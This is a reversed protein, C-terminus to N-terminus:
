PAAAPKAAAAGRPVMRVPVCFARSVAIWELKDSAPTRQGERALFVRMGPVFVAGGPGPPGAGPMQAEFVASAQGNAIQLRGIPTESMRGQQGPINLLAVIKFPRDPPQSRNFVIHFAIKFSEGPAVARAGEPPFMLCQEDMPLPIGEATMAWQVNTMAQRDAAALPYGDRELNYGPCAATAATRIVRVHREVEGKTKDDAVYRGLDILIGASHLYGEMNKAGFFASKALELNAAVTEERRKVISDRLAKKQDDSFPNLTLRDVITAAKIFDAISKTKSELLPKLTVMEADLCEQRMASLLQAIKDDYRGSQDKFKIMDLALAASRFDDANRSSARFKAAAEEIRADAGTDPSEIAKWEQQLVTLQKRLNPYKAIMRKIRDLVTRAQEPTYEKGRKVTPVIADVDASAFSEEAGGNQPVYRLTEGDKRTSDAWVSKGEKTIILDAARCLTTASALAVLVLALIRM